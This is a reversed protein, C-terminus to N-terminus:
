RGAPAPFTGGGVFGNGPVGFTGTNRLPPAAPGSPRNRQGAEREERERQQRWRRDAEGRERERWDDRPEAKRGSDGTLGMNTISKTAFGNDGAAAPGALALALALTALGAASRPSMM